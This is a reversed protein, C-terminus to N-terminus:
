QTRLKGDQRQAEISSVVMSVTWLM